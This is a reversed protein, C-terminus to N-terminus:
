PALKRLLALMKVDYRDPSADSEPIDYHEQPTELILPIGRARKDALLWAFTKTGIKGEGILAHRDRNSAFPFESDNLHFFSPPEGTAAEFEDLM